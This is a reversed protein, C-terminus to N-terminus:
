TVSDRSLQRINEPVALTAPPSDIPLLVDPTALPVMPNVLVVGCPPLSVPELQEGVGHAYSHQSALCAPVDAGLEAALKVLEQDGIDIDWADLLLRITAAADASGGGMGAAVPLNKHLDIRAGLAGSALTRLRQAALVVLNDGSTTLSKAFPGDISLHIDDAPSVTIEDGFETFAILSELEHYGDARRGVIKLFLNLKAHAVAM